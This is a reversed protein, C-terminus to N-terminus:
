STRRWVALRLALGPGVAPMAVLETWRQPREAHSQSVRALRARHAEALVAASRQDAVRIMTCPHPVNAM